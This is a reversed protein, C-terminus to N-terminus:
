KKKKKTLQYGGRYIEGDLKFCSPDEVTKAIMVMEHNEYPYRKALLFAMWTTEYVIGKLGRAGTKKKDALEAVKDIYGETFRISTGLKRFVEKQVKLASEDGKILIEKLKDVNLDNLKIVQVRGMFEDTMDGYKVFDSPEAKRYIPTPDKDFGMNKVILHKYVDTFAGSLIVIMNTTDIMVRKTSTRTDEAAEYKAGEIFPLLVNLVGRGSVDSNEKSGKKDIEDIYIISNEAKKVNGGCLEILQWMEEEIDTGTYGPVTLGTANIKYFPRGITKAIARMSATKGVGTPGTLLIADAKLRPDLEKRAIETILRLVPEDQAIITKTVENFVKDIDITNVKEIKTTVTKIKQTKVTKTDKEIIKAVEEVKKDIEDSDTNTGIERSHVDKGDKKAEEIKNMNDIDEYLYEKFPKGAEMANIKIDMTGITTELVESALMLVEKKYEIEEKTYKGEITADLALQELEDIPINSENLEEAKKKARKLKELNILKSFIKGDERYGVIYARNKLEDVYKKLVYNDDKEDQCYIRRADEFDMMHYAVYPNAGPLLVQDSTMSWFAKGTEDVFIKSKEDYTGEIARDFKFIYINEALFEGKMLTAIQKNM